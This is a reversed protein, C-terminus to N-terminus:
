SPAYSTYFCTVSVVSLISSQIIHNDHTTRHQRAQQPLGDFKVPFSWTEVSWSRIDSPCICISLGWIGGSYISVTKIRSRHTRDYIALDANTAFDYIKITTTRCPQWKQITKSISRIFAKNACPSWVGIGSPSAQPTNMHNACDNKM